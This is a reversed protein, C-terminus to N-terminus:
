LDVSLQSKETKNFQLVTFKKAFLQKQSGKLVKLILAAVFCQFFIILKISISSPPLHLM